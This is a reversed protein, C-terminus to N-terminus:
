AAALLNSQAPAPIAMIPRHRDGRPPGGGGRLRVLGFRRDLDPAGEDGGSRLRTLARKWASVTVDDTTQMFDEMSRRFDDVTESSEMIDELVKGIGERLAEDAETLSSGKAFLSGPICGTSQLM